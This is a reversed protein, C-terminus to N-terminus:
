SNVVRSKLNQSRGAEFATKYAESEPEARASGFVAVKKRM